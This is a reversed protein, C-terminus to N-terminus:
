PTVVEKAEPTTPPVADLANLADKLRETDPRLTDPNIRARWATHLPQNHKILSRTVDGLLADLPVAGAEDLAGSDLRVIQRRGDPLEEVTALSLQSIDRVAWLREDPGVAVKYKGQAMGLVVPKTKADTRELFLLIEEGRDFDSAGPVRQALDGVRGGPRRITIVTHPELGATDGKIPLAVRLDIETVIQNGEWQSRVAEVRGMVITNAEASLAETNLKLVITAHSAEPAAVWASLAM